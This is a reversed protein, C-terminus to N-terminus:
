SVKKLLVMQLKKLVIDISKEADEVYTQKFLYRTYKAIEKGFQSKMAEYRNADKYLMSVRSSNSLFALLEEPHQLMNVMEEFEVKAKYAEKSSKKYKGLNIDLEEYLDVVGYLEAVGSYNSLIEEAEAPVRYDITSVIQWAGRQYDKFRKVELENQILDDYVQAKKALPVGEGFVKYSMGAAELLVSLPDAISRGAHIEVLPKNPLSEVFDFIKETFLKGDITSIKTNSRPYPEVVENFPIIRQNYFSLFYISNEDFERVEMYRVINNIWRNRPGCYFEKAIMPTDKRATSEIILAIRDTM